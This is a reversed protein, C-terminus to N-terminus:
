TKLQYAKAAMSVIGAVMLLSLLFVAKVLQVTTINFIGESWPSVALLVQSFTFGTILVGTEWSVAAPIVKKHILWGFLFFSTFGVLVLHLYAIVVHRFENAFEAAVPFASFLQLIFKLALAMFSLLFLIRASGATKLQHVLRKIPPWMLYLAALQAAGAIFGILNVVLPPKSWLTSLAFAPVCAGILVYCAMRFRRIGTQELGDDALTAILSLIGFFFFGNYQFHLYFYIAFRYLNSHDLGHSKLYGLAFPGISSLVFFLLATKALTLPLSSKGATAKFFLLIFVLTGFTHLSSFAISFAGYGQLPFSILMGAVCGQLFWFLLRFWRVEAFEITFALLLVNFIWGLFMVHSHAHLLYAYVVERHPAFQEYRLILGLISAVVLFALPVRLLKYRSASRIDTPKVVAHADM